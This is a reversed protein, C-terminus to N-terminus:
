ANWTYNVLCKGVKSELYVNASSMKGLKCMCCALSIACFIFLSDNVLARALVIWRLQNEPVEGHILMACTLNVVLFLLSTFISGLYLLVRSLHHPCFFFFFFPLKLWIIRSENQVVRRDWWALSGGLMGLARSVIFILCELLNWHNYQCCTQLTNSSSEYHM